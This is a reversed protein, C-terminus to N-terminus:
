ELRSPAGNGRSKLPLEARLTLADALPGNSRMYYARRRGHPSFGCHCYLALAPLNDEAVELFMTAAASKEAEAAAEFLLARALGLRRAARLTAISLIESEDAAVQVLIFAQLDTAAENAGLFAFAGPREMLRRFSDADWPEDFAAGHLRALLPADEQTATRIVTV